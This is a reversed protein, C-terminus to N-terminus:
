NKADKTLEESAAKETASEETKVADEATAKEEVVTPKKAALLAEIAARDAGACDTGFIEFSQWVSLGEDLVDFDGGAQAFLALKVPQCSSALHHALSIAHGNKELKTNAGAKLLAAFVAAQEQSDPKGHVGYAAAELPSTHGEQLTGDVNAGLRLLLEVEQVTRFAAATLETDLFEQTCGDTNRIQNETSAVAEDVHTDNQNETVVPDQAYVHAGSLLLSIMVINHVNNM